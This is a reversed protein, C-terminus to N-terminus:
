RVVTVRPPEAYGRWVREIADPSAEGDHVWFRYRSVYPEGPRIEFDGLQCPAFNFFPESPHIRMAQPHRFNGPNDLVAIGTPKGDLMGGVDCWRARTAHGDARTRGESTLFRCKEEPGEWEGSGRLGIGGYRYEHLELPSKGACTQVSELDFLYGEGAGGLAWIRVTWVEDLVPKTGEPATLDLFRHRATFHGFVPGGGAGDLGVHEIRGLKEGSNWFDVKRGEFTTNTWPFWLGYHHKHGPPFDNTVVQGSPNWLPHIYGSRAFEPGYGGTAPPHQTAYNYSLIPSHGLYFSLREGDDVSIVRSGDVTAPKAAPAPAAILRYRRKAKPALDGRAIWAVLPPDGEIRQCPVEKEEGDIRLLRLGDRETWGAPIEHTLPVDRLAHEGNEVEITVSEAAFAPAGISLALWASVFAVRRLKLERTSNM